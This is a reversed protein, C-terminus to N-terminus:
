NLHKEINNICNSLVLTFTLINAKSLVIGVNLKITDVAVLHLVISILHSILFHM